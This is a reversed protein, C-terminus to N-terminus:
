IKFQVSNQSFHVVKRIQTQKEKENKQQPLQCHESGGVGCM